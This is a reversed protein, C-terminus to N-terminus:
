GSSKFTSLRNTTVKATFLINISEYLSLARSLHDTIKGLPTDWGFEEFRLQEILQENTVNSNIGLLRLLGKTERLRQLKAVIVAQLVGDVREILQPDNDHMQHLAKELEGVHEAVQLNDAEFIDQWILLRHEIPVESPIDAVIALLRAIREENLDHEVAVQYAEGRDMGLSQITFKVAQRAYEYNGKALQKYFQLVIADNRGLATLANEPNIIWTLIVNLGQENWDPLQDNENKEMDAAAFAARAFRCNFLTIERNTVPGDGGSSDVGIEQIAIRQDPMRPILRLGRNVYGETAGTDIDDSMDVEYLEHIKPTKPDIFANNFCLRCPDPIRSDWAIGERNCYPYPQQDPLECINTM